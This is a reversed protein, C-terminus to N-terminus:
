PSPVASANKQFERFDVGKDMHGEGIYRLILLFQEAPIYGPVNVLHEGNSRLFITTPYGTVRFGASLGRSTMDKGKYKAKENSEANIKVPVFNAQLYDRVDQRAYVDRDMRKCWGCWDTYVDVVIPHNKKSAEALGEDWGRWLDAATARAPMAALGAVVLVLLLL